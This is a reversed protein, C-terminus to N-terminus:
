KKQGTVYFTGEMSGSMPRKLICTHGVAGFYKWGVRDASNLISELSLEEGKKSFVGHDYFYVDAKSTNEPWDFTKYDFRQNCGCLLLM